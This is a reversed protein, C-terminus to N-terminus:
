AGERFSATITAPPDSYRHFVANLNLGLHSIRPAIGLQFRPLELWSPVHVFTASRRNVVAAVLRLAEILSSKGANNKGVVVTSSEFLVTHDEFCRFNQM